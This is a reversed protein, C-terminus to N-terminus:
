DGTQSRTRILSVIGVVFSVLAALELLYFTFVWGGEAKGAIAINNAPLPWGFNVSANGLGFGQCLAAAGLVMLIPCALLWKASKMPSVM